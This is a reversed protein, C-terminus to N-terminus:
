ERPARMASRRHEMWWRAVGWVLVVAGLGTVCEMAAVRWWLVRCEPVTTSWWEATQCMPVYLAAHLGFFWAWFVGPAALILGFGITRRPHM